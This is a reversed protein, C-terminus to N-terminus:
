KTHNVLKTFKKYNKKNYSKENKKKYNKEKQNKSNRLVAELPIQVWSRSSVFCNGQRKAM